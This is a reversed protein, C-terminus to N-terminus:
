KALTRVTRLTQKEASLLECGDNVSALIAISDGLVDGNDKHYHLGKAGYAGMAHLEESAKRAHCVLPAVARRVMARAAVEERVVRAADGAGHHEGISAHNM